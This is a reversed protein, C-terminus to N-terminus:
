LALTEPQQASHCHEVGEYIKLKTLMKRGLINKPLMRKVAERIIETPKTEYMEELTKQKIGRMFGTYRTYLKDHVKNTGQVRIKKANLVVVFDGCDVNSTFEPHVKGMLIMALKSALRGLTKGDADVVYWKSARKDKPKAM